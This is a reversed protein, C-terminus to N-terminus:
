LSVVRRFTHRMLGGAKLEMDWTHERFLLLGEGYDLRAVDGTTHFPMIGTTFDAIEFLMTAESAARAVKADLIAQTAADDPQVDSNDNTLIRVINRMRRGTSMPSLPDDNVFTSTLEPRDPQSVVALFINPVDFLDLTSSVNPRVVSAADITYDWIPPADEPLVYEQATPVGDPTMSLTTYGIAALLDNIIQLKSTGPAWELAAPLTLTTSSVQSTPMGASTLVANIATVYNTGAAVLHRVTVKDQDLVILNDYGTMKTGRNEPSTLRGTVGTECSFTGLCWEEWGGTPTALRVYPRIRETLQDFTQDPALTVDITRKSVNALDNNAVKCDTAKLDRLYVGTSTWAEYRFSWRRGPATLLGAVYPSVASVGGRRAPDGAVGRQQGDGAV